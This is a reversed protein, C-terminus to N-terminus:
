EVDAKKKVSHLVALLKTVIVFAFNQYHKSM